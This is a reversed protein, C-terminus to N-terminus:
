GSRGTAASVAHRARVLISEPHPTHPPGTSRSDPHKTRSFVTPIRTRDSFQRVKTHLFATQRRLAPLPRCPLARPLPHRPHIGTRRSRGFVTGTRLPPRLGDAVATEPTPRRLIHNELFFSSSLIRSPMQDTPRICKCIRRDRCRRCLRMEPDSGDGFRRRMCRNRGPGAIEQPKPFVTRTFQYTVDFYNQWTM